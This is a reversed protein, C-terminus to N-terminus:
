GRELQRNCIRAPLAAQLAVIQVSVLANLAVYLPSGIPISAMWVCTQKWTTEIERHSPEAEHPPLSRISRRVM